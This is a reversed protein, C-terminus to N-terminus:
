RQRIFHKFFADVPIKPSSLITRKLADTQLQQREPSTSSQHYDECNKNSTVSLYLLSYRLTPSRTPRSHQALAHTFLRSLLM